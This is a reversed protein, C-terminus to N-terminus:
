SEDERNTVDDSFVDPTLDYIWDYVFWIAKLARKLVEQEPSAIDQSELSHMSVEVLSIAGICEDLARTASVLTSSKQRPPAAPSRTKPPNKKPRASQGKGAHKRRASM